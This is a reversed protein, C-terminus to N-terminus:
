VDEEQDEEEDREASREAQLDSYGLPISVVMILVPKQMGVKDMFWEFEQEVFHIEIKVALPLRGMAGSNWADLWEQGDYYQFDLSAMPVAWSPELSWEAGGEEYTVPRLLRPKEYVVFTYRQDQDAMLGYSVQKTDGPLAGGGMRAATTYFTLSDIQRGDLGEVNDGIFEVGQGAGFSPLYAGSINQEFHSVLFDAVRLLVLDKDIREVSKQVSSFSAYLTVSIIALISVAM